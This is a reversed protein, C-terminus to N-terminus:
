KLFGPGASDLCWRLDRRTGSEEITV